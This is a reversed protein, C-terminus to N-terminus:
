KLSTYLKHAVKEIERRQLLQEAWHEAIGFRAGLINGTIAGVSDTDGSHNVSLIMAQKLKCSKDAFLMAYTTQALVPVALFKNKYGLANPVKDMSEFNFEHALSSVYKIAKLNEEIGDKYLPNHRYSRLVTKTAEIIDKPDKDQTAYHVFLATIGTAVYAAQGGHTIAANECGLEFIRDEKYPLFAIPAVRMMGGCGLNPSQLRKGAIECDYELPTELTGYNPQSLAALTGRGAGCAFWFKKALPTWKVANIICAKDQPYNVQAKAWHLYGQWTYYHLKDSFKPDFSETEGLTKVIALATTIAMTTDDTVSGAAYVPGEEFHSKYPILDTLGKDGYIIKIKELSRIGELPAGLSDGVAGMIFSARIKDQMM